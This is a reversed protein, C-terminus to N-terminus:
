YNGMSVGSSNGITRGKTWGDGWHSKQYPNQQLQKYHRRGIEGPHVNPGQNNRDTYRRKRFWLHDGDKWRWAAKTKAM